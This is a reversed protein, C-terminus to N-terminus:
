EARDHAFQRDLLHGSGTVHQMMLLGAGDRPEDLRKEPLWHL